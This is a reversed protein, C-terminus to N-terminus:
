DQPNDDYYSCMKLGPIEMVFPDLADSVGQAYSQREEILSAVLVDVAASLSATLAENTSGALNGFTHTFTKEGNFLKFAKVHEQEHTSLDGNIYALVAELECQTLESEPPTVTYRITPEPLEFRISMTGTVDWGGRPNRRKGTPSFNAPCNAEAFNATTLGMVSVNGQHGGHGVACSGTGSTGAQEASDDEDTYVIEGDEGADEDEEQWWDPMWDLWGDDEAQVDDPVESQEQASSPEGPTTQDTPATQETDVVPGGDASDGGGTASDWVDSAAQSVKDWVSGGSDGEASEEDDDWWRQLQAPASATSLASACSPCGCGKRHIVPEHSHPVPTAQLMRLVAANGAIRQLRLIGATAPAAQQTPLVVEEARQPMAHAQRSQLQKAAFRASM